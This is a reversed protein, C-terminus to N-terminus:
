EQVLKKKLKIIDQTEIYKRSDRKKKIVMKLRQKELNRKNSDIANVKKVMEECVTKKVFYKEAANSLKSLDTSTNKLNDTDLKDVESKPSALDPKKLLVRNELVHQMNVDSKTAYNLM